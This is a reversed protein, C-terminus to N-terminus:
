LSVPFVSLPRHSLCLGPHLPPTFSCPLWPAWAPSPVPCPGPPHLSLCVPATYTYTSLHMPACTHPHGVGPLGGLIIWLLSSVQSLGWCIIQELYSVWVLYDVAVGRFSAM